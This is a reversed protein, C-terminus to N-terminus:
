AERRDEPPRLQEKAQVCNGPTKVCGEKYTDTNERQTRKILVGSM